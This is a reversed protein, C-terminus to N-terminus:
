RMRELLLDPWDITMGNAGASIAREMDLDGKIAFARLQLGRDEAYEVIEPTLERARVAVMGFGASAARDVQARQESALSEGAREGRPLASHLLWCVPSDPSSVRVRSLQGFDSSTITAREVLEARRFAALVLDPLEPERSKLEVHYHLRPGFEALVTDLRALGTGAYRTAVEPHATDFWTGVDAAELDAAAHQRVPGSLDTKEDLIRDHFLVLVGDASQQVDLEVEVAGIELARRFAPLTNEPAYGSAGRHAIVHFCM